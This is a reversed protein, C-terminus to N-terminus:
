PSDIVPIVVGRLTIVGEIIKPARPVPRVVFPLAQIVEKIRMIDIGYLDGGVYFGALKLLEENARESEDGWELSEQSSQGSGSM